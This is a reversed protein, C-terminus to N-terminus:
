IYIYVYYICLFMDMLYCVCMCVCWCLTVKVLNDKGQRRTAEQVCAISVVEPTRVCRISPVTIVETGVNM